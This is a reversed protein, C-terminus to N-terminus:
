VADEPHLRKEYAHQTRFRRRALETTGRNAMCTGCFPLHRNEWRPTILKPVPVGGMRTVRCGVLTNQM